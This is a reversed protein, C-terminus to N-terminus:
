ISRQKQITDNEISKLRNEDLKYKGVLEEIEFWSDEDKKQNGSCCECTWEVLFLSKLTPDKKQSKLTPDFAQTYEKPLRVERILGIKHEGM